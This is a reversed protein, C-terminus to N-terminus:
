EKVIESNPYRDNFSMTLRGEECLLLDTLYYALGKRAKRMDPDTESALARRADNLEKKVATWGQPSM